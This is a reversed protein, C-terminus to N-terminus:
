PCIRVGEPFFQGGIEVGGAPVIRSMPQGTAPHIRLVEKIVAQLYTMKQAETFTVPNSIKGEAAFEDIEKVLKTLVRPNKLLYYITSALAIGTTDSGAAINAGITTTFDLEEIKGKEGLDVLKTLFDNRDSIKEGEKRAKVHRRIYAIVVDFPTTLSFTKAIRGIWYHLEPFLGVRSGYVTGDHIGQLIGNHDKGAKM